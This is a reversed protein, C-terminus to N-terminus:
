CTKLQAIDCYNLPGFELPTGPHELFVNQESRASCSRFRKEMDVSIVTRFGVCAVSLSFPNECM